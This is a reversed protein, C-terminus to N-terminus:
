CVRYNILGIHSTYLNCLISAKTADLAASADPGVSAEEHGVSAEEHGVNHKM